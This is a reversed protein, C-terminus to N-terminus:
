QFLHPWVKTIQKVDQVFPIGENPPPEVGEQECVWCAKWGMDFASMVNKLNDDAFYIELQSNVIMDKWSPSHHELSGSPLGSIEAAIEYSHPHPKVSLELDEYCVIQDFLELIGLHSLLRQAHRSDSNTFLVVKDVNQKLKAIMSHLEEDHQQVGNLEFGSHVYHYFTLPDVNYGEAILGRLTTGHQLYLNVSKEEANEIGLKESLYQAIRNRVHINIGSSKPYLCDDLDFFFYRIVHNPQSNPQQEQEIPTDSRTITKDSSSTSTAAPPQSM